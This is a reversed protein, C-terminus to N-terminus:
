NFYFYTIIYSISLGLIILEGNSMVMPHPEKQLLTGIFKFANKIVVLITFVFVFFFITSINLM